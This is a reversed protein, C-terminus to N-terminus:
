HTSPVDLIKADYEDWHEVTRYIEASRVYITPATAGAFLNFSVNETTTTVTYYEIVPVDAPSAIEKWITIDLLGTCYAFCAGGLKRLASGGEETGFTVRALNRCGFFAMEGIEEFCAPLTLSKVSARYFANKEIVRLDSAAPLIFKLNGYTSGEGIYRTGAYAFAAEGISQLTSPLTVSDLKSYYFTDGSKEDKSGSLIFCYAPIRTVGEGFVVTELSSCERFLYIGLNGGVSGPIVANVLESMAAFAYDGIRTVSSPVVLETLGTQCFAYDDIYTVTGTFNIETVETLYAFAFEGIFSIDESITLKRLSTPTCSRSGTTYSYTGDAQISDSKSVTGGFIYMMYDNDTNTRSGGIFPVTLEELRVVGTFAGQEITTVTAPVVVTRVQSKYFAGAAITEVTDAFTIAEKTQPVLYLVTCEKNYLCSDFAAYATNEPAVTFSEIAACGYYANDGIKAVTAPISVERLATYAFAYRGISRLDGIGEVESLGTFGYFAYDPLTDGMVAIRVKKLTAPSFNGASGNAEGSEAGFYYALYPASSPLSYVALTELAHMGSLAGRRLTLGPADLTLETLNRNGDFAFPAIETCGAPLTFSTENKDSALYLSLCRGYASYLNGDIVRFLATDNNPAPLLTTLSTCGKLAGTRLDNLSAPIRFERMASCGSFAYEGIETVTDPLLISSLAECDSFAYRGVALLGESLRVAALRRCGTFSHERIEDLGTLDGADTLKGCGAFAYAGVSTCASTLNVASLSYCDYFASAGVSVVTAPLHVTKVRANGSFASAGVETVEVGDWKAPVIVNRENGTYGTVVGAEIRLGDTYAMGYLTVSGTSVDGTFPQTLFVDSFWLYSVGDGTAPLVPAGAPFVSRAVEKGDAMGIYEGMGDNLKWGAYLTTNEAPATRFNFKATCSTNKYWGTFTYGEKAPAPISAEDLTNGYLLSVPSVASGGKTDFSVLLSQLPAWGAYYTVDATVPTTAPTAPVTGAADSYWGTFTYGYRTPNAPVEPTDGNKVSVTTVEAADRTDFTVTCIKNKGCSLLCLGLVLCLVFLFSIRTLKTKM